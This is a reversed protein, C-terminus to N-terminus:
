MCCIFDVQFFHVYNTLELWSCTVCPRGCLLFYYLFWLRLFWYLVYCVVSSPRCRVSLICVFFLLKFTSFDFLVKKKGRTKSKGIQWHGYETVMAACCRASYFAASLGTHSIVADSWTPGYRIRVSCRCPGRFSRVPGMSIWECRFFTRTKIVRACLWDGQSNHGLRGV